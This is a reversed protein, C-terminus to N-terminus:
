ESYIERKTINYRISLLGRIRDDDLKKKRLITIFDLISEPNEYNSSKCYLIHLPNEIKEEIIMM